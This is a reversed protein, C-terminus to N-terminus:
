YTNVTKQPDQNAALLETVGPLGETAPTMVGGGAPPRAGNTPVRAPHRAM